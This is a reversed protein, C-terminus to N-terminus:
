SLDRSQFYRQEVWLELKKVVQDEIQMFRIGANGLNDAWAVKGEAQISPRMDPLSFKMRISEAFYLPQSAVVKVGGKSINVVHAKMRKGSERTVSAALDLSERFYRLRENMIMNRAASLTHVARDVSVPKEVVFTAGTGSLGNKPSGSAIVIPASGPLSTRLKRMFSRTGESDCDVIVADVRSKKLRIWARDLESEVDVDIHLGSLICELVSVEQWDRSIIM